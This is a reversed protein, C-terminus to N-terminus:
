ELDMHKNKELKLAGHWFFKGTWLIKILINDKNHSACLESKYVIKDLYIIKVLDRTLIGTAPIERIYLTCNAM